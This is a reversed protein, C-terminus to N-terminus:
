SAPAEVLQHITILLDAERIPKTLYADMGAEMTLESYGQLAHATLAIIPVRPGDAEASRIARAATLGDVHPMQIDMLILDPREARWRDIATQGDPASIVSHGHHELMRTVVTLSVRNDEAILIRLSKATAPIQARLETGSAPQTDPLALTFHFRSGHGFHSCVTLTGGIAKVIRAAIPLGLGTGGYRRTISSDAQEFPQFIQELQGAPIGIGTDEVEITVAAGSPFARLSVTGVPTFKIANALLNHVVQRLRAPDGLSHLPLAPHLDLHLELGKEAARVAFLRHAGALLGPLSFPTNELELKGSDLKSLDLVDNLLGLLDHASEGAAASQVVLVPAILQGSSNSEAGAVAEVTVNADDFRRFAAQDVAAIITKLRRGDSELLMSASNPWNAGAMVTAARVTGTVRVRRAEFITKDIQSATAPVAPPLPGRGLIKVGRLLLCPSYACPAINGTIEVRLGPQLAPLVLGAFPQAYAAHEGAQLFLFRGAPNIFTVVAELRAEPRLQVEAGTLSRLKALSDVLGEPQAAAPLWVSLLTLLRVSHM